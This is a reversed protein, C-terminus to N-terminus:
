VVSKMICTLLMYKIQLCWLYLNRFKGVHGKMGLNQGNATSLQLNQTHILRSEIRLKGKNFPYFKM